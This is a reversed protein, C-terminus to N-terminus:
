KDKTASNPCNEPCQLEVEPTAGPGPTLGLYHILSILMIYVVVGLLWPNVAVFADIGPNSM